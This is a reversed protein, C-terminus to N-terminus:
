FFYVINQEPYNITKESNEKKFSLMIFFIEIKRKLEGQAYYAPDKKERLKIIRNDIIMARLPQYRHRIEIMDRGPEKNIALLKKANEVGIM